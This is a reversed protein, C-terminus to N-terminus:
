RQIVLKRVWHISKGTFSVAYVGNQLDFLNLENLGETLSVSQSLVERGQMDTLQVTVPYEPKTGQYDFYVKRGHVPNPFIRIGAGSDEAVETSSTAKDLKVKGIIMNDQSFIRYYGSLYINQSDITHIQNIHYAVSQLPWAQSTFLGNKGFLSDIAGDEKFRILGFWFHDGNAEDVFGFYYQGKIKIISVPETSSSVGLIHKVFRGNNAFSIDPGGSPLLRTIFTYIPETLLLDTIVGAVLIKDDEDIHLSTARGETYPLEQMGDNGFSPDPQGDSLYRCVHINHTCWDDYNYNGPYPSYSGGSVVIRGNNDIVMDGLLSSKCTYEYRRYLFGDTGFTSDVQGDSLLRGVFVTTSDPFQFSTGFFANGAILVNGDPLVIIKTVMENQTPLDIVTHGNDGFSLDLQGDIDVRAVLISYGEQGPLSVCGGMMIRDTEYLAASLCSDNQYGLDIRIQGKPGALTDFKGDHFLRVLAFDTGDDGSTHGALIIKGSELFLTSFCRDERGDFDCGTIGPWYSGPIGEFSSPVGFTSDPVQSILSFPVITSIFALIVLYKM